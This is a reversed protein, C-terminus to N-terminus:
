LAPMWETYLFVKGMVFHWLHFDHAVHPSHPHLAAPQGPPIWMKPLQTTEDVFGDRSPPSGFWLAKVSTSRAPPGECRGLLEHLATELRRFLFNIEPSFKEGQL